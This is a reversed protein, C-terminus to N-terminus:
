KEGTSLRFSQCSRRRSPLGTGRSGGRGGAGRPLRVHALRPVTQLSSAIAVSSSQHPRRCNRLSLTCPNLSCSFLRQGQFHSLLSGAGRGSVRHRLCLCAAQTQERGGEGGSYRDVGLSPEIVHPIYKRKLDEDFYEQSTGSANAHQTLDYNGRAAIGM